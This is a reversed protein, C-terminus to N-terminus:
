RNVKFITKVISVDADHYPNSREPHWMIGHKLGCNSRIAEITGDGARAVVEFDTPIESTGFEHFSAVNHTFEGYVQHCKAVHGGIRKLNSGALILLKQMGRCIGLIPLREREAFKILSDETSTRQNLIRCDGKGSLVVGIANTEAYYSAVEESNNFINPIPILRIGCERFFDAYRVDLSDSFEDRKGDYLNAQSILVTRM